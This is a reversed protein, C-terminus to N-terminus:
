KVFKNPFMDNFLYKSRDKPEFVEMMTDEYHSIIDVEVSNPNTVMYLDILESIKNKASKTTGGNNSTKITELLEKVKNKFDSFVLRDVIKEQEIKPAKPVKTEIATKTINAITDSELEKIKTLFNEFRITETFLNDRLDKESQFPAHPADYLYVRNSTTDLTVLAQGFEKLEKGKRIAIDLLTNKDFKADIIAEPIENAIALIDLFLVNANKSNPNIGMLWCLDNFGDMNEEDFFSEVIIRAKTKRRELLVKAISKKDINIVKCRVYKGKTVSSINDGNDGMVFFSPHNVIGKEFNVVAADPMVLEYFYKNDSTPNNRNDTLGFSFINCPKDTWQYANNDWTMTKGNIDKYVLSNAERASSQFRFTAM